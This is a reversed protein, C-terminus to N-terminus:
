EYAHPHLIEVSAEYFHLICFISLLPKSPELPLVLSWPTLALHPDLGLPRVQQDAPPAPRGCAELSMHHHIVQDFTANPSPCTVTGSIM